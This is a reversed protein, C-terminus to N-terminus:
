SAPKWDSSIVGRQFLKRTTADSAELYAHVKLIGAVEEHFLNDREVKIQRSQLPPQGCFEVAEINSLPLHQKLMEMFRVCVIEQHKNAAIWLLPIALREDSEGAAGL